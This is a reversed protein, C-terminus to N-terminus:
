SRDRPPRGSSSTVDYLNSGVRPLFPLSTGCKTLKTAGSRSAPAGMVTSGSTGAAGLAYVMTRRPYRYTERPHRANSQRQRAHSAVALGQRVHRCLHGHVRERSQRSARFARPPSERPSRRAARPHRCTSSRLRDLTALRTASAVGSARTMGRHSVGAPPIAVDAASRTCASCHSKSATRIPGPMSSSRATQSNTRASKGVSPNALTTSSAAAIPTTLRSRVDRSSHSNACGPVSDEPAAGHKTVGVNNVGCAPSIACKVNASLAAIRVFGVSAARLAASRQFATTASFPAIVYTAPGSPRTHRCSPPM